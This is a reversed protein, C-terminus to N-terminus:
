NMGGTLWKTTWWITSNDSSPRSDNGLYMQRTMFSWACRNHRIDSRWQVLIAVLLFLQSRDSSSLELQQQQGAGVTTAMGGGSSSGRNSSNIGRQGLTPGAQRVPGPFKTQGAWRIAWMISRKRLFCWSISIVNCQMANCQMENWQMADCRMANCQM